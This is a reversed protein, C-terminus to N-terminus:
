AGPTSFPNEVVLDGFRQGDQLDETALRGCGAHRAASVILADFISLHASSSLGMADLVLTRDAGIVPFAGVAEVAARTVDSDMGLRRRCVAHLEILVQTSVIIEDRHTDIYGLATERKEPQARNLAYVFVNTDVFVQTATDSM